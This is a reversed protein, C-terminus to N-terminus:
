KWQNIKLKKGFANKISWCRGIRRSVLNTKGGLRVSAEVALEGKYKINNRLNRMQEKSTAWRCNAKSYGKDNDIRDITLGKKYGTSMDSFFSIFDKWYIKIGRGGYLKYHDSTPNECRNKMGWYVRYLPHHSLNHTKM